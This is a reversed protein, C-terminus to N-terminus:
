SHWKKFLFFSAITIFPMKPDIGLMKWWKSCCLVQMQATKLIIKGKLLGKALFIRWVAKLGFCSAEVFFRTKKRKSEYTPANKRFIYWLQPWNGRVFVPVNDVEEVWGYIYEWPFYPLFHHFRAETSSYATQAARQQSIKEWFKGRRKENTAYKMWILDSKKEEM